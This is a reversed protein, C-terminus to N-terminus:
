RLWGLLWLLGVAPLVFQWSLRLLIWVGNAIAALVMLAVLLTEDRADRM